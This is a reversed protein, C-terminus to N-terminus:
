KHVVWPQCRGADTLFYLVYHWGSRHLVDGPFSDTLDIGRHEIKVSFSLRDFVVFSLLSKARVINPVSAELREDNIM